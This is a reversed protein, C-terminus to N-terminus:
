AIALYKTPARWSMQSPNADPLHPAYNKSSPYHAAISTSQEMLTERRRLFSVLQVIVEDSRSKRKRLLRITKSSNAFVRQMRIVRRLARRIASTQPRCIKKLT